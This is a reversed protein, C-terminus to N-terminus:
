YEKTPNKTFITEAQLSALTCAQDKYDTLKKM